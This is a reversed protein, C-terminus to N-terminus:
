AKKWSVSTHRDSIERVKAIFKMGSKTEAIADYSSKFNRKITTTSLDDGFKERAINHFEVMRRMNTDSLVESLKM